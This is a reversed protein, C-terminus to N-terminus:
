RPQAPRSRVPGTLKKAIDSYMKQLNVLLDKIFFPFAERSGQVLGDFQYGQVSSCPDGQRSIASQHRGVMLTYLLGPSLNDPPSTVLLLLVKFLLASTASADFSHNGVLRTTGELYRM